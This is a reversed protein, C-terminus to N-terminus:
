IKEIKGKEAARAVVHAWSVKRKDQNAVETKPESPQEMVPSMPPSLDSESGYVTDRNPNGGASSWGSVASGRSFITSTTTTTAESGIDDDHKSAREHTPRLREHIPLIPTSPRIPLPVGSIRRSPKDSLTPTAMTTKSMSDTSVSSIPRAPPKPPVPIYRRTAPGPGRGMKQPNGTRRGDQKQSKSLTEELGKKTEVERRYKEQLAKYQEGAHKRENELRQQWTDKSLELTDVRSKAEALSSVLEKIREEETALVLSNRSSSFRL